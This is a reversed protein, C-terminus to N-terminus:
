SATWPRSHRGGTCLHQRLCCLSLAPQNQLRRPPSGRRAGRATACGGAQRGLARTPAGGAPFGVPTERPRGEPTGHGDEHVRVLARIERVVQAAGDLRAHAAAGLVVEADDVAADDDVLLPALHVADQLRGVRRGDHLVVLREVDGEGALRDVAGVHDEASVCASAQASWVSIFPVLGGPTGARPHSVDHRRPKSTYRRRPLAYTRPEIGRPPEEPAPGSRKAGTPNKVRESKAQRTLLSTAAARR